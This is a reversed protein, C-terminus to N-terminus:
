KLFQFRDLEFNLFPLFISNDELACLESKKSTKINELIGFNLQRDNKAPEKVNNSSPYASNMKNKFYSRAEFETAIVPLILHM